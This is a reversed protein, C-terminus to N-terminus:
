STKDSSSPQKNKYEDYGLLFLGRLLSSGTGKPSSKYAAIIEKEKPYRSDLLVIFRRARM